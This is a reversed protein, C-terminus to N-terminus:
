RVTGKTSKKRSGNEDIEVAVDAHRLRAMEIRQTAALSERKQDEDLDRLIADREVEFQHKLAMVQAEYLEQKRELERQKRARGQEREVAAASERATQNARASGMLVGESGVYADILEMGHDTLVFERVQNSHAIGRAKLVYLGRNREGNSEINKVLIWVDMLSSVGVESDEIESSSGTLSTFMGTIQRVKLFDILRTLMGKTEMEDGVALFNTIPDVVVVQPAFEVIVKHILALHIELGFNSPRANQFKLLGQKVYKELDIGISRMNRIIQDQSEEFAFFLAREGRKCAADIFHAAITSKGTGATGSVLISSGRYFGHGGFMNDLRANGTSVRQTPAKHTLGISTIPLVSFGKEDIIFPYENTGHSTGRYKVIRMRRTSIQNHVRHDLLIVCDAVYEELGYRTLTGEGRECTIVATVGKEKLWRFLRRLEARIIAENPLASFLAELTDLVIRKAGIQDIAHGLRLFLGELDYEGTEEIESREIFVYDLILKKDASLQKLDFGLSSVNTALEDDTEEFSIFVGPENFLVAGCVLFEMAFLTKGAGASGCILTPRGAPLGGGTIEDFGSIGTREKQLGVVTNPRNRRNTKIVLPEQQCVQALSTNKPFSHL